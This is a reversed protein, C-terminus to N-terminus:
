LINIHQVCQLALQSTHPCLLACLHSNGGAFFHLFFVVFIACKIVANRTFSYASKEHTTHIAADVQACVCVCVNEYSWAITARFFPVCSDFWLVCVCYIDIGHAACCKYAIVVSFEMPERISVPHSTPQNTPESAVKSASQMRYVTKPILKKAWNTSGQTFERINFLIFTDISNAKEKQTLM